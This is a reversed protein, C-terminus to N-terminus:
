TTIWRMAEEVCQELVEESLEMDASLKELDASGLEAVDTIGHQEFAEAKREWGPLVSLPPASVESIRGKELLAQITEASVGELTSIDGIELPRRRSGFSLRELCRYLM